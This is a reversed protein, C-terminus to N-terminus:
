KGPNTTSSSSIQAPQAPVPLLKTARSSRGDSRTAPEGPWASVPHSAPRTLGAAHDAEIRSVGTPLPSRGPYTPGPKGGHAPLLADLSEIRECAFGYEGYIIANIVVPGRDLWHMLQRHSWASWCPDGTAVDLIVNTDVLVM